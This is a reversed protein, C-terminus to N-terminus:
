IVTGLKMISGVSSFYMICWGRILLYRKTFFQFSLNQRRAKIITVALKLTKSLTLCRFQYLAYVYNYYYPFELVM